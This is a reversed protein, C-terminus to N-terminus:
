AEVEAREIVVDQNREMLEAFRAYWVDGSARPYVDDLFEGVTKERHAQLLRQMELSGFQPQGEADCDAAFQGLDPAYAVLSGLWEYKPDTWTLFTVEPAQQELEAAVRESEDGYSETDGYTTCLTLRNGIRSMGWSDDLGHNELIDLVAGVRHTPCDYIIVQLATRDGM